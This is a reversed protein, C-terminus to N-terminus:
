EVEQVSKELDSADGIELINYPTIESVTSFQPSYDKLKGEVDLLKVVEEYLRQSQEISNSDNPGYSGQKETEVSVTGVVGDGKTHIIVRPKDWPRKTSLIIVMEYGRDNISFRICRGNIVDDVHFGRQTIPRVMM